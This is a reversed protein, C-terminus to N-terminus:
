PNDANEEEQLVNEPGLDEAMMRHIRSGLETTTM